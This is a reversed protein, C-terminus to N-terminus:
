RVDEISIKTQTMLKHIPCRAVLARLKDRQEETLPGQFDVKVKLKYEGQRERSDDREVQVDVGTLPLGHHHAYWSATLSKCAALAADFLDHPRPGEDLGGDHPDLDALFDHKGETLRVPLSRDPYASRSVIM